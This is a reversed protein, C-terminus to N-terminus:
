RRSIGPGARSRPQRLQAYVDLLRDRVVPPLSDGPLTGLVRVTARTQELYEVCPECLELHEGIARQVDHPLTGELHETVLEVFEQCAVVLVPDGSPLSPLDPVTM